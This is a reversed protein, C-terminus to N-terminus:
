LHQGYRRLCERTVQRFSVNQRVVFNVSFFFPMRISMRQLIGEKRKAFSRHLVRCM